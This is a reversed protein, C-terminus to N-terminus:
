YGGGGCAWLTGDTKQAILFRDGASVRIWTTGPLVQAPSLRGITTGDSLQGGSNNGWAWLSGDQKIAYSSKNGAAVFAWDNDTGIQTPVNRNTTTGDGLQGKDNLGWAWLTGDHQIGLNLNGGGYNNCSIQLWCQAQLLVSCLLFFLTLLPSCFFSSNKM